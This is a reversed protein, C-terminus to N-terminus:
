QPFGVFQCYDFTGRRPGAVYLDRQLTGPRLLVTSEVKVFPLEGEKLRTFCVATLRVEGPPVNISPTLPISYFGSAGTYARPAPPIFIVDSRGPPRAPPPYPGLFIAVNQLPVGTWKNFVHGEVWTTTADQAQPASSSLWM